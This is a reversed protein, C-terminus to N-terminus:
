PRALGARQARLAQIEIDAADKATAKPASAGPIAGIPKQPVPVPPRYQKFHFMQSWLGHDDKEPTTRDEVVCQAIGMMQLTPHMITLALSIGSGLPSAKFGPPALFQKYFQVWLAWDTPDWIEFRISFTALADGMPRLTAGALYMGKAEQWDTKWRGGFITAKGPSRIGAISIYDQAPFEIGPLFPDPIPIPLSM